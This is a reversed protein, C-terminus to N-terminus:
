PRKRAARVLRKFRVIGDDKEVVCLRGNLERVDYVAALLERAEDDAIDFVQLAGWGEGGVTFWLVPKGVDRAGVGVEEMMAMEEMVGGTDM